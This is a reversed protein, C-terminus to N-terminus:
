ESNNGSSCMEGNLSYKFKISQLHIKGIVKLVTFKHYIKPPQFNAGNQTAGNRTASIQTAGNWTSSIRTAGISNACIGLVEMVWVWYSM